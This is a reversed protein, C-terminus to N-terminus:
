NDTSRVDDTQNRVDLLHTFTRFLLSNNASIQERSVNEIHEKVVLLLCSIGKQLYMVHVHVTYMNLVFSVLLM